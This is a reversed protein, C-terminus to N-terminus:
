YTAEYDEPLAAWDSGYTHVEKVPEGNRVVPEGAHVWGLISGELNAVHVGKKALEQALKASRYGITCYTVVKKGPAAGPDFESAPVSGPIVSVAREEESRADVFVAEGDKQLAKAKAVSIRKVDPFEAAYKEFMEHVVAANDTNATQQDASQGACGLMCGTLLLTFLLKKM